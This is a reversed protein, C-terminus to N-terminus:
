LRLSDETSLRPPAQAQDRREDLAELESPGSDHLVESRLAVQASPMTIELPLPLVAETGYVLAFPTMQTPRRKSTRYAWLAMPLAHAWNKQHDELTRSLIKLLTKNTAEAQGNGKPYYATSKHHTIDYSALLQGGQCNVFPTGNDSLIVKPIGFRCIIFERIFNSVAAGTAKRLPIAEVWKTYLETATLIWVHRWFHQAFVVNGQVGYGWPAVEPASVAM